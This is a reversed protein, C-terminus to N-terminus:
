RGSNPPDLPRSYARCAQALTLLTFLAGGDSSALQELWADPLEREGPTAKWLVEPGCEISEIGARVWGVHAAAPDRLEVSELRMRTQYGVRRLTFTTPVAGPKLYDFARRPGNPSQDIAQPDFRTDGALYRAVVHRGRAEAEEAETMVCSDEATAKEEDTLDRGLEACMATCADAKMKALALDVLAAQEGKVAERDWADDWALVLVGPADARHTPVRLGKLM